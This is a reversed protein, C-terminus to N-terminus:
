PRLWRSIPRRHPRLRGTRERNRLARDQAQTGPRGSWRGPASRGRALVLGRPRVVALGGTARAHRRLRLREPRPWWGRGEGHRLRGARRGPDRASAGPGRQRRPDAQPHYRRPSRAIGADRGERPQDRDSEHRVPHVALRHLAADRRRHFDPSDGVRHRDRHRAHLPGVAAPTGPDGALGAGDLRASRWNIRPGLSVPPTSARSLPTTVPVPVM